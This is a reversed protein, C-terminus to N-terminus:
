DMSVDEDKIKDLKGLQERFCWDASIWALACCKSSWKGARRPGSTQICLVRGM